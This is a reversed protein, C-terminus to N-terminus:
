KVAVCCPCKGNSILNMQNINNNNFPINDLIENEKTKYIISMFAHCSAKHCHIAELGLQFETQDTKQMAMIYCNNDEKSTSGGSTAGKCIRKYLQFDIPMEMKNLENRTIFNLMISPDAKPICRNTM